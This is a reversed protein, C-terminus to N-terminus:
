CRVGTVDAAIGFAAVRVETTISAVPEGAAVAGADQALQAVDVTVTVDGCTGPGTAGPVTRYAGVDVTVTISLSSGYVHSVLTPRSDSGVAQTAM